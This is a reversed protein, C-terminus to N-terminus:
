FSEEKRYRKILQWTQPTAVAKMLKWAAKREEITFHDAYDPLDRFSRYPLVRPVLNLFDLVRGATQDLNSQYDEYYLTLVPTTATTLTSTGMSPVVEGLLNHWQTWKYFEARCPVNAMLKRINAELIGEEEPGYIEDLVQCFNRLGTANKPLWQSTKKERRFLNRSELHFRAVVNTFPNRLLHVVKAVRRPDM